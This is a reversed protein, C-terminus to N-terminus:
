MGPLMGMLRTTLMAGGVTFLLNIVYLTIVLGLGKTAKGKHLAGFGAALVYYYWVVFPSITALAATLVVSSGAPALVAANLVLNNGVVVGLIAGVLGGIVLPMRAYGLLGLYSGYGVREEQFQGFLLAILSTMLGALWPGILIMMGGGIAGSIKSVTVMQPTYLPNALATVELNRLTAPLIIAFGVLAIVMQALYGPFVPVRGEFEQFVKTPEYIVRVIAKWGSPRQQPNM